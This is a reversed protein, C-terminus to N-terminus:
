NFIEDQNEKFAKRLETLDTHSDQKFSNALLSVIKGYNNTPQATGGGGEPALNNGM